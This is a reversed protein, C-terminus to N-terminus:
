QNIRYIIMQTHGIRPSFLKVEGFTSCELGSSKILKKFKTIRDPNYAAEHDEVLFVPRGNFFSKLIEATVDSLMVVDRKAYYYFHYVRSPTIIVSNEPTNDKVWKAMANSHTPYNEFPYIQYFPSYHAAYAFKPSIKFLIPIPYTLLLQWCIIIFILSARYILRREGSLNILSYGILIFAFPIVPLMYRPAAGTSSVQYSGNIVILPLLMVILITVLFIVKKTFREIFLLTILPFCYIIASLIIIVFGPLDLTSGSGFLLYNLDLRGGWQYHTSTIITGYNQYNFYISPLYGLLFVIVALFLLKTINSLRERNFNSAFFGSKYLIYLYVPIFMAETDRVTLLFGLFLFSFLFSLLRKKIKFIVSLDVFELEKDRKIVSFLLFAISSVLFFLAPNNTFIRGNFAVLLPHVAILFSALFTVRERFFLNCTIAVFVITLSSLTITFLRVLFESYGFLKFLVSLMLPFGVPWGAFSYHIKLDASGISPVLYRGTEALTKAATLIEFPDSAINEEPAFALRLFFGFVFISLVIVIKQTVKTKEAM